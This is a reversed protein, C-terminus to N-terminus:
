VTEGEGSEDSGEYDDESPLDVLFDPHGELAVADALLLKVTEEVAFNYWRGSAGYVEVANGTNTVNIM